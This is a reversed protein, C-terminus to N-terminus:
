TLIPTSEGGWGMGGCVPAIFSEAMVDGEISIVCGILHTLPSM